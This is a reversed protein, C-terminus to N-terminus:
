EYIVLAYKNGHSSMTQSRGTLYSHIQGLEVVAVFVYGMKDEQSASAPETDVQADKEQTSRTNNQQQHMHGM